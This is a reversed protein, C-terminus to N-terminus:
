SKKAPKEKNKCCDDHKASGEGHKHEDKGSCCDCKKENAPPSDTSGAEASYGADSVAKLLTKNSVSSSALTVTATSSKLDVKVDKVGEVGRLAKDVKTVCNNCHMGEISLKVTSPSTAQAYLTGASLFVIFLTLLFTRM